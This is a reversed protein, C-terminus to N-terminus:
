TGSVAPITTPSRNHRMLFDRFLEAMPVSMTTLLEGKKTTEKSNTTLATM